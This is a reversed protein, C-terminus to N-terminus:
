QAKMLPHLIMKRMREKKKLLQRAIKDIDEDNESTESSKKTRSVRVESKEGAKEKSEMGKIISDVEKMFDRGLETGFNIRGSHLKASLSKLEDLSMRDMASKIKDIAAKDANAAAIDREGEFTRGEIIVIKGM